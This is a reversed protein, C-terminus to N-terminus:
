KDEMLQKKEAECSWCLGDALCNTMCNNGCICYSMCDDCGAQGCGCGCLTLDDPQFTDNCASCERDPEGLKMREHTQEPFRDM